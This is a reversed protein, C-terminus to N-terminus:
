ATARRSASRARAWLSAHAPGTPPEDGLAAPLGRLRRASADRSGRLSVNEMLVAPTAPDLGSPSCAPRGPGRLQRAGMYIATTADPTPSRAGTWSRPCNATPTTRPSSSSGSPASRPRQAFRRTRGGRRARDHRRSRDQLCRGRRARGRDGRQRPRIRRSRRGEPARRTKGQRALAIMKATIESQRPSAAGAASASTSAGRRAGRSNSCRAPSALQDFM